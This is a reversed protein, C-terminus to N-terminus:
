WSTKFMVGHFIKLDNSSGGKKLPRLLKTAAMM